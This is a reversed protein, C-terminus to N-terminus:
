SNIKLVVTSHASTPCSQSKWWGEDGDVAASDNQVDEGDDMYSQEFDLSEGLNDVVENVTPM